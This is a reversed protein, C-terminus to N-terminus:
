RHRRLAMILALILLAALLIFPQRARDYDSQAFVLLRLVSYLVFGAYAWITWRSTYQRLLTVALGAFILAWLSYAVAELALSLSTQEALDPALTRTRLLGGLQFLAMLSNVVILRWPRKQLSMM